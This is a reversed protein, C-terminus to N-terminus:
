ARKSRGLLYDLRAVDAALAGPDRNTIALVVSAVRRHRTADTRATGVLHALARRRGTTLADWAASAEDDLRLAAALADPIDVADQDAVRFRMEVPQDIVLGADRMITPGVIVYHRGDGAPIFAGAMPLEAIEGEIRLQPHQRLPLAAAIDAPLFLVNYWIKRDRGVGHRSLPAEFAHPFWTM